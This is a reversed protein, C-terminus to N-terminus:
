LCNFTDKPTLRDWSLGVPAMLMTSPNYDINVHTQTYTFTHSCSMAKIALPSFVGWLVIVCFTLLPGQYIAHETDCWNSHEVTHLSVPWGDGVNHHCSIDWVCSLQRCVKNGSLYSRCFLSPSVSFPLETMSSHFLVASVFWPVFLKIENQVTEM